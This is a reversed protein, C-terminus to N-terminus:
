HGGLISHYWGIRLGHRRCADALEQMVDRRWPTGMVDLGTHRSDFLAFGDHHKTTIVVYRMGADKAMRVWADADFRVPNWRAQLQEYEGVPIRATDRIWEGHDTRGQWEGAPIAYLGWHLFLGFRAERWWDLRADPQQAPAHLALLAALGSGLSLRTLPVM